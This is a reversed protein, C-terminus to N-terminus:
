KGLDSIGQASGQAGHDLDVRLGVNAVRHEIGGAVVVGVLTGKALAPRQKGVLPAVQAHPHAVFVVLVGNKAKRRAVASLADGVAVGLPILALKVDGDAIEKLLEAM